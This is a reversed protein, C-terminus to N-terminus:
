AEVVIFKVPIEIRENDRSWFTIRQNAEGEPMPPYIKTKSGSIITLIVMLNLNRLTQDIFFFSVIRVVGFLYEQPVM